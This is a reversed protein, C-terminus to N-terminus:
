ETPSLTPDKESDIELALKFRGAWWILDRESWEYESIWLCLSEDTSPLQDDNDIRYESRALELLDESDNLFIYIQKKLQTM